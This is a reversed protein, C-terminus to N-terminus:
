KKKIKAYKQILSIESNKDQYLNVSPLDRNSLHKKQPLIYKYKDLTSTRKSKNKILNINSKIQESNKKILIESCSKQVNFLNTKGIKPLAEKIRKSSAHVSYRHTTAAM